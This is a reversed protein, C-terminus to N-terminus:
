SASDFLRYVERKPLNRERAVAKIADMRSLGEKEKRLVAAPISEEPPPAPDRPGILLTFEGKISPRISLQAAVESARGRLFEEHLKTLERAAVVPPDNLAAAIDALSELVRHPAEYFALTAPDSAVTTLLKRREGSKRPLFGCFRFADTPLGSAALAALVACPGPVPVVQISNELAARVLRYGPDSVLPTGADSVLAGSAGSLLRDVLEASRSQENHEHYSLLPRDIAYHDLLKRTQRTDECAIWSVSRLTEVARYTIDGLHGIPTAVIYLIGPESL